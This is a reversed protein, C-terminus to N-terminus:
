CTGEVAYWACALCTVDTRTLGAEVREVLVGTEDGAEAMHEWVLGCMTRPTWMLEADGEVLPVLHVSMTRAYTTTVRLFVRGRSASTNWHGVPALDAGVGPVAVALREPVPSREVVEESVRARPLAAVLVVLVVVLLVLPM